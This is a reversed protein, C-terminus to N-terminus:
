ESWKTDEHLNHLEQLLGNLKTYITRAAVKTRDGSLYKAIEDHIQVISTRTQGKVKPVLNKLNADCRVMEIDVIDSWEEPQALGQSLGSTNQQLDELLQPLRATFLFHSRLTYISRLVWLTLLLSLLSAATGVESSLVISLVSDLISPGPNAAAM